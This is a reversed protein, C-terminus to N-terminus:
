TELSQSNLEPNQPIPFRRAIASLLVMLWGEIIAYAVGLAPLALPGLNALKSMLAQDPIIVVEFLLALISYIVGILFQQSKRLDIGWSRLLLVLFFQVLMISWLPGLYARVLQAILLVIASILVTRLNNMKLLEGTQM